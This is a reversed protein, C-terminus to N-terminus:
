QGKYRNVQLFEKSIQFVSEINNIYTALIWEWDTGQSNTSNKNFLVKKKKETKICVLM